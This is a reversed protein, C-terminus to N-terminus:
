SGRDIGTLGNIGACGANESVRIGVCQDPGREVPSVTRIIILRNSLTISIEKWHRSIGANLCLLAVMNLNVSILVRSVHRLPLLTPNQYLPIGGCPLKTMTTESANGVSPKCNLIPVSNASTSQFSTCRM